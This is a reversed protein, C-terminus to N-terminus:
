HNKAHSAVEILPKRKSILQWNFLLFFFLDFLASHDLSFQIYLPQNYISVCKLIIISNFYSFYFFITVNSWCIFSRYLYNTEIDLRNEFCIWYWTQCILKYKNTYIFPNAIASNFRGALWGGSRMSVHFVNMRWWCNSKCKM